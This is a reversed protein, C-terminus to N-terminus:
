NIMRLCSLVIKVFIIGTLNIEFSLHWLSTTNFHSIKSTGLIIVRANALVNANRKKLFYTDKLGQWLFHKQGANKIVEWFM